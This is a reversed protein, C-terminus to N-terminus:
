VIYPIYKPGDLKYVNVKFKKDKYGQVTVYSDNYIEDCGVGFFVVTVAAILTTYVDCRM